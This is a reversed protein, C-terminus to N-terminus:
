SPSQNQLPEYEPLFKQLSETAIPYMGIPAIVACFYQDLQEPTQQMHGKVWWNVMEVFSGTIHNILFDRPIATTLENKPLVFHNQILDNMSDKFFQLFLDSSTCSLLSLINNDNKQLHQLLHCFVSQSTWQHSHATCLHASDITNTIIHGFLAECVSKLLDDKTEFHAYFTTRGVNAADIINQVTINNYNKEALLATFADYIAQRTKEQRRDMPM